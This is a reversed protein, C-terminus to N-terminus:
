FPHIFAVMQHANEFKPELPLQLYAGNQNFYPEGKRSFLTLVKGNHNIKYGAEAPEHGRILIQADLAGLVEETVEQGFVYGAGRPSTGLRRIQEDPDSWLLEELFTAKPYLQQANALDQLSRLNHPLGGHVMLYRKEVYVAVQLHCFLETLRQYVDYGNQKFKRQLYEPLDHPSAMLDPPGEHNGQLLVVQLPFALKLELVCYILEPSL